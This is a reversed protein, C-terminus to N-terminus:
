EADKGDACRWCLPRGRGDWGLVDLHKVRCRSCVFPALLGQGLREALLAVYDATANRGTPRYKRRLFRKLKPGRNSPPTSPEKNGPPSLGIM